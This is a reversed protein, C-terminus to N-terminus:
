FNLKLAFQVRRPGITTHTATGFAPAELFRVPIGFHTRNLFNFAEARFELNAEETFTFIKSIALDVSAIGPARFTNRGIGGTGTLNYFNGAVFADYAGAPVSTGLQTHNDDHVAIGNMSAVRDTPLGNFDADLTTNVTYPQGTQLTVRDAIRWGDLLHKALGESDRWWPLDWILSTAFRHRVDFSSDARELDLRNPNEPLAFGGGLDFVDSVDDISHSWTYAATFQFSHSYRKRLEAQLGHYSSNGNSEFLTFAGLDGFARTPEVSQARTVVPSSGDVTAGFVVPFTNPGGNPQNARLLHRSLVGAYGVSLAYDDFLQHEVTLGFQQAYPTELDRQPLTFALFSNM